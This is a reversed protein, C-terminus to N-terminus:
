FRVYAGINFIGRYGFGLEAYAGVWPIGVSLGIPVVQYAFRGRKADGGNETMSADIDLNQKVFGLGASAGGYLEVIGKPLKLYSLQLDAAVTVYKYDGAIGNSECSIKEYAGLLGVRFRSVKYRYGFSIAGSSANVKLSKVKSVEDKWNVGFVGHETKILRNSSELGYGVRFEHRQAMVGTSVLALILLLFLKKM